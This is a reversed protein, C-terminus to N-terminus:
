FRGNAAAERAAEMAHLHAVKVEEPYFECALIEKTSSTNSPSFANAFSPRYKVAALTKSTIDENNAYNISM